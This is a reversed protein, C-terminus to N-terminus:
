AEAVNDQASHRKSFCFATLATAVASPGIAMFGTNKYDKRILLNTDFWELPAHPAGYITNLADSRRNGQWIFM